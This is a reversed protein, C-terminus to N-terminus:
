ATKVLVKKVTLQAANKLGPLWIDIVTDGSSANNGREMQKYDYRDQLNIEYLSTSKDRYIFNHVEIAIKLLSLEATTAARKNTKCRQAIYDWLELIGDWQAINAIFRVLLIGIPDQNSNDHLLLSQLQEDNQVFQLASLFPTIGELPPNQEIKQTLQSCKEELINKESLLQRNELKLSENEELLKNNAKSEDNNISSKNASFISTFIGKKENEKESQMIEGENINNLELLELRHAIYYLYQQDLTADKPLPPLSTMM